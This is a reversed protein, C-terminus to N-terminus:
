CVAVPPLGAEEKEGICVVKSRKILFVQEGALKETTDNHQIIRSLLICERNKKWRIMELRYVLM